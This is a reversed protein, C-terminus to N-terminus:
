LIHFLFHLILIYLFTISINFITYLFTIPINLIDNDLTHKLVYPQNRVVSLIPLPIIGALLSTIFNYVFANLYAFFKNKM